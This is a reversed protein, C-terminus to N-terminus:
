GPAHLWAKPPGDLSRLENGPPRFVLFVRCVISSARRAASRPAVPSWTAGVIRPTMADGGGHGTAVLHLEAGPWARALGVTREKLTAGAEGQEPLDRTVDVGVAVAAAGSSGGHFCPKKSRRTNKGPRAM